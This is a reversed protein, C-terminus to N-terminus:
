GLDVNVKLKGSSKEVREEHSKDYGLIAAGTNFTLIFTKVIKIV